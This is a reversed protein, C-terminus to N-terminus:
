KDNFFFGSNCRNYRTGCIRFNLIVACELLAEMYKRGRVSKTKEMEVQSDKEHKKFLLFLKPCVKKMM